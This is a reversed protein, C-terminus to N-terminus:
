QIPPQTRPKPRPHGARPPRPTTRRDSAGAHRLDEPTTIKGNPARRPGGRVPRGPRGGAEAGAPAVGGGRRAKDPAQRLPAARVGPPTEGGWLGRRDLTEEVIGESVRKVTEAIPRA